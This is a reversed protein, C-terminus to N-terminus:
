PNDNADELAKIRALITGAIEESGIATELASIADANDNVSKTLGSSSDGIATELASIDAKIETDDYPEGGGNAIADEHRQLLRLLQEQVIVGKDLIKFRINVM